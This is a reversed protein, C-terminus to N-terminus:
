GDAPSNTNQPQGSSSTQTKRGNEIAEELTVGYFAEFWLQSRKAAMHAHVMVVNAEYFSRRSTVPREDATNKAVLRQYATELVQARPGRFGYRDLEYMTPMQCSIELEWLPM